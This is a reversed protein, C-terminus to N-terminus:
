NWSKVGILDMEDISDYFLLWNNDIGFMLDTYISKKENSEINVNVANIQKILYLKKLYRSILNGIWNLM